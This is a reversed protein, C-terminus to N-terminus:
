SLSASFARNLVADRLRVARNLSRAVELRLDGVSYLRRELDAILDPLLGEPPVAIRVTALYRLSLNYQGASTAAMEELQRRVAPAQWIISLWDWLVRSGKLRFRILYSAHFHPRGFESEVLAARGILDRSGNTRIVLFDGPRLSQDSRLQEPITAYKLDALEVRGGVVNPIRLIPWGAAEYTAKQSTGYDSDWALDAMSAITWDDAQSRWAEDLIAARLSKVRRHSARLANEAAEIRTVQQEINEVIRRQEDLPPIPIPVKAAAKGSLELFTTGSGLSRVLDRSSRLYWLVYEPDVDDGCVFSKFGQNTCAPNRAIAVYGIPARSTFLVTGAPVMQTSCSNYGAQTISRRGREIYKGTFGSLDDPTIWPIEGGWYSPEGTKPTSGGVVKAVEGMTAWHWGDPLEWLDSM